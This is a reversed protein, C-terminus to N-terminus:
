CEQVKTLIQQIAQAVLVSSINGNNDDMTLILNDGIVYGNRQYLCLKLATRRCYNPDDLRGLHEWLIRKGNPLIITFDPFIRKLGDVSVQYLFEEEYHTIFQDYSTLANLIIQESKSRVLEGCDTEHIHVKPDKPAQSYPVLKLKKFYQKKRETMYDRYQSGLTSAIENLSASSYNELLKNLHHLNFQAQSLLKKQLAKETLQKVLQQNLTINTQKKKRKEDQRFMTNQYYSTGRKRKRVSLSGEPSLALCNQATQIQKELRKKELEMQTMFLSM